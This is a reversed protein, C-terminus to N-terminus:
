SIVHMPLQRTFVEPGGAMAPRCEKGGLDAGAKARGTPQRYKPSRKIAQYIKEHAKVSDLGISELTLAMYGPMYGDHYSAM